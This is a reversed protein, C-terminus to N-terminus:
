SSTTAEVSGSTGVPRNKEMSVTKVEVGDDLSGRTFSVYATWFFSVFHRYPLRIHVPLAFQICDSPGWLKIMAILDDQLNGYYKTLGVTVLEVPNWSNGAVAEKVTYYCPFYIMPLHVIIDFLVMKVADVMGAKDSLKQALSKKAFADMTPFWQRFRNVMLWYQFGGLYVFGFVVFVGNRRWDIESFDKREAVVQTMLDAAMTKATAVVLQFVFPNKKAFGENAVVATSSSSSAPSTGTTSADKATGETSAKSLRSSTQYRRRTTFTPFDKRIATSWFQQVRGETLNSKSIRRLMGLSSAQSSCLM